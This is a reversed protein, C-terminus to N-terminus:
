VLWQWEFKSANVKTQIVFSLVFANSPWHILQIGIGLWSISRMKTISLLTLFFQGGISDGFSYQGDVDCRISANANVIVLCPQFSPSLYFMFPFQLLLQLQLLLISICSCSSSAGGAAVIFSSSGEFPDIRRWRRRVITRRAHAIATPNMCSRSVNQKAAAALDSIM